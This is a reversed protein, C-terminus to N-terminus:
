WILARVARIVLLRGIAQRTYTDVRLNARKKVPYAAAKVARAARRLKSLRM